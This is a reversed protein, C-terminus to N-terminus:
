GPPGQCAAASKARVRPRSEETERGAGLRESANIVPYWSCPPRCSGRVWGSGRFPCLHPCRQPPARGCYQHWELNWYLGPAGAWGQQPGAAVCFPCLHGPLPRSVAPARTAGSTCHVGWMESFCHSLAAAATGRHTPSSINTNSTEMRTSCICKNHLNFMKTM